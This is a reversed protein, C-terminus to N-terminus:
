ELIPILLQYTIKKIFIKHTKVPSTALNICCKGLTRSARAKDGSGCLGPSVIDGTTGARPLHLGSSWFDSTMSVQLTLELVLSLHM